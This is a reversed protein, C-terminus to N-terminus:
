SANKRESWKRTIPSADPSGPGVSEHTVSPASARSVERIRSPVSTVDAVNRSGPGSAIATACTSAIDRPRTSSPSPDPQNAASCSAYPM